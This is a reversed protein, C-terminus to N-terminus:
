YLEIQNEAKRSWRRGFYPEAEARNWHAMQALSHERGLWQSVRLGLYYGARPPINSDKSHDDLFYNQADEQSTSNFCSLFDVAFESARRNLVVM